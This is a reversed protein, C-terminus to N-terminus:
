GAFHTITAAHAVFGRERKKEREKKKRARGGANESSRAEGGEEWMQREGTNAM